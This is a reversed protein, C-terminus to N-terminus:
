IPPHAAFWRTVEDVRAARAPTPPVEAMRLQVERVLVRARARDGHSSWLADALALRLEAHEFPPEWAKIAIAHARELPVLADQPRDRALALLGQGILLRTLEPFAQGQTRELIDVGRALLPGAIDVNGQLVHARGLHSLIHAVRDHDPGLTREIVVLLHEAIRQAEAPAGGRFTAEALNTTAPFAEYHDPGRDREVLAQVRRCIAVTEEYDGEYLAVVALGNLHPGLMATQEGLAAEVIGVARQFDQSAEAMYGFKLRTFGRFSITRALAPHEPGLSVSGLEISREYQTQAEAYNRRMFLADGVSAHYAASRYSTADSDLEIAQRLEDLAEGYRAFRHHVGALNAHLEVELQPPRGLRRIAARAVQAWMQGRVDQSRMEAVRVLRTAAAARVSDHGSEEALDYAASLAREAAEYDEEGIATFGLHLSADARMPTYGTADAQVVAAEALERAHASRGANNEVRVRSLLERLSGVAEARESTLNTESERDSVSTCQGPAPLESAAQVARRAVERDSQALIDVAIRLDALHEDLCALRAELLAAPQTHHVHTADCVRAHADRWTAAYRDLQERVRPGVARAYALGTATLSAEVADAREDNWVEAILLDADHCGRAAAEPQVVALQVAVGGVLAVGGVGLWRLVRARRATRARELARVLEDMSAFRQAPGPALGRQLVRTIASPVRGRGEGYGIVGATAALLLDGPTEGKFPRAGFLGEFLAVCFAFQDARHDVVGGALQEPAMYAPTGVLAGAHSIEVRFLDPRPIVVGQVSAATLEVDGGARRALGFDLVRVRGDKGILVNEPKFDRHVLRAAHAASLGRAAAMFVEFIELWTRPAAARWARLTQGDIYEMALYVRGEYTGVDFITVVNPHSLRAIARAERLLRAQDADETGGLLLKLAVRRSLEPDYAAYVVSMGGAGLRELVVYRDILTGRAFEFITRAEPRTGAAVTDRLELSGDVM